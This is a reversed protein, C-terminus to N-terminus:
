HTPFEGLFVQLKDSNLFLGDVVTGFSFYIVGHESEDIFKQLDQPLPKPEKVHAGGIYVLNMTPRPPALARHMNVFILSRSRLLEGMSPVSELHGFYQQVLAAQLPSHILNQMSWDFMAFMTNYWRQFFSMRDSYSLFVGPVHATPTLVGMSHDFTDSM